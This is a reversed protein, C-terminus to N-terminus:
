RESEDFRGLGANWPLSRKHQLMEQLVFYSLKPSCRYRKREIQRLWELREDM